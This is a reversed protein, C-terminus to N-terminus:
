RTAASRRQRNVSADRWTSFSVNERVKARVFLEKPNCNWRGVMEMSSEKVALEWESNLVIIAIVISLELYTLNRGICARSSLSFPLVIDKLNQRKPDSIHYNDDNPLWRNPIFSSVGKLLREDKHVTYFPESVVSHASMYFGAITSSEVVTRRPLGSDVPPM